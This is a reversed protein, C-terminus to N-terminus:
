YRDVYVDEKALRFILCLNSSKIIISFHFPHLRNRVNVRKKKQPRFEGFFLFLYIM